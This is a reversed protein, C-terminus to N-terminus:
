NVDPKNVTKTPLSATAWGPTFKRGNNDEVWIECDVMYESNERYKKTVFGKCTLPTGPEDMGRYQCGLKKLIGEPGIWDTILQGLFSSKLAGHLIVGPLGTGQAFDKDYHIEYFDGSAAAYRVLQRTTPVKVLNPINTGVEVDEWYLKM